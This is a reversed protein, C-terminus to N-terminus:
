HVRRSSQRAPPRWSADLAPERDPDSGTDLVEDTAYLPSGTRVAVAIADSPRSDVGVERDGVALQIVAYYTSGRLETIVVREISGELGDLISKILDHTNPRPPEIEELAEAISQAQGMGIWIPLSRDGTQEKLLIVPMEARRDFSLSEVYVQLLDPAPGKAASCASLFPLAGTLLPLLVARKGPCVIM